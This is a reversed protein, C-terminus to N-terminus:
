SQKMIVLSQHSIKIDTPLFFFTFLTVICFKLKIVLSNNWLKFFYQSNTNNLYNFLRFLWEFPSEVSLYWNRYVSGCSRLLVTISFVLMFMSQFVKNFNFTTSSMCKSYFIDYVNKGWELLHM